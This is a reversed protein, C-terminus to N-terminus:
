GPSNYASGSCLLGPTAWQWPGVEAQFERLKRDALAHLILKNFKEIAPSARMQQHPVAAPQEGTSCSSVLIPQCLPVQPCPLATGQEWTHQSLLQCGWRASGAPKQQTPKSYKTLLLTFSLSWVNGTPLKQKHHCLIFWVVVCVCLYM